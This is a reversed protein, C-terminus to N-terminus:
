QAHQAFSLFNHGEGVAILTVGPEFHAKISQNLIIDKNAKEIVVIDPIKETLSRIPVRGIRGCVIYHNIL